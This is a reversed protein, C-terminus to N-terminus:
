KAVAIAEEFAVSLLKSGGGRGMTVGYLIGARSMTERNHTILILQSKNALNEIMDAYKKSNAEDLAADTEDLVIFPPPNVQSIAFLLAISTLAREGGSLMMLGKIKKKPLIVEINIGEETEEEPVVESEDGEELDLDIDKKKRKPPTIVSLRAEGGGFMLFFYEKFQANIKEVGTKFETSLRSDLDAILGTLSEASKELDILEKELFSDRESVETYEKLVEMEGAGSSDELRIKIKEIKRRREEQAIRPEDSNSIASASLKLIHTGLLHGLETLERKYDEAVVKLTEEELSFSHLNSIVEQFEAMIRFVAKEADRNSDKEKEIDNKLTNYQESLKNEREKIEELSKEIQKKSSRLTEIERRSDELLSMDVKDKNHDIFDTLIKEVEDLVQLLAKTDRLNRASKIKEEVKKYIEEVSVLTVTKHEISHAVEEQKKVMKSLSSLEGDLRGFDRFLNDKEDRIKHLDKELTILEESKADKHKAKELVSKASSLEKDLEKEKELLPQKGKEIREKTKNIYEDERKLYEKALTTLENKMQVTKEVKEVQKKLFRIHPAIERRLSEVQGINERTKLLKRESEQKKYQFLKLGLADEIMSKREKINANLIRDAEGQSIIHHGSAGIHASALLEVVDRLRVQSGNILYENVSDRHVVREITVTEFDIPLFKSSNDFVVKVSARNARPSDGAGNWILDEGKKGRLSKISQEGLVFRFAEAINSKGSGNPGVIASVKSTFNLESKKAFSKFGTLEISKLYM